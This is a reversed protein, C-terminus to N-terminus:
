TLTNSYLKLYNILIDVIEYNFQFIIFRTIHYLILRSIKSFILNSFDICWFETM